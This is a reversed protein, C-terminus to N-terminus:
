AFARRARLYRAVRDELGNEGGNIKRSIPRIAESDALENLGHERWWWAASMAAGARTRLWSGVEETALDFAHAVADHGEFGTIQLLGAGRYRFGDGPVCNGMRGSYAAEAIAYEDAKRTATRGCRQALWPPFRAPWTRMLGDVSYDLIESLRRFDGSEHGVQAIFAALRLRTVIGFRTCADRLPEVWEGPNPCCPAAARLTDRTLFPITPPPTGGDPM